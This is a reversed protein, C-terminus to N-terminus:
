APTHPTSKEGWGYITGELQSNSLEDKKPYIIRRRICERGRSKREKPNPKISGKGDLFGWVTGKERSGAVIDDTVRPHSRDAWYDDTPEYTEAYGTSPHYLCRTLIVPYTEGLM